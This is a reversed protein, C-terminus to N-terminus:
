AEPVAQARPPGSSLRGTIVEALVREMELNLLAERLTRDDLATQMEPLALLRSYHSFSLAHSVDNDNRLRKFSEQLIVPGALPHRVAREWVAPQRQLILLSAASASERSSMPDLRNLVSGLLGRGLSLSLRSLLDAEGLPDLNQAEVARELHRLQSAAGAWRVAIAGGWVLLLAPVLGLLGGRVRAKRDMPGPGGHSVIGNLLRRAMFAALLGAGVAGYKIFDEPNKGWWSICLAPMYRFWALAAGAGAALALGLLVLRGVGRLFGMVACLAIFGIVVLRLAPESTLQELM